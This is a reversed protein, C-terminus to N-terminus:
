KGKKLEGLHSVIFLAIAIIALLIPIIREYLIIQQKTNQALRVQNSITDEGFELSWTNLDRIEELTSPDFLKNDGGFVWRVIRGSVPEVWITGRHDGKVIYGKIWPFHVTLDFPELYYSFKYTELEKVFEVEEFKAMEPQVM